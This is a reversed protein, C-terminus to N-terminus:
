SSYDNIRRLNRYIEQIDYKTIGTKGLRLMIHLHLQPL